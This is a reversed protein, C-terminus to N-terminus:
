AGATPMFGKSTVDSYTNYSTVHMSYESGYASKVMAQIRKLDNNMGPLKGVGSKGTYDLAISVVVVDIVKLGKGDPKLSYRTNSSSYFVVNADAGFSMFKSANEKMYSDSMGPLHVASVNTGALAHSDIMEVATLTSPMHLEHIDTGSFADNKVEILSTSLLDM